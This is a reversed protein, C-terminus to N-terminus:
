KDAVEFISNSIAIKQENDYGWKKLFQFYDGNGKLSQLLSELLKKVINTDLLKLLEICRNKIRESKYSTSIDGNRKHEIVMATSMALNKVTLDVIILGGKRLQYILPDNLRDMLASESSLSTVFFGRAGEVSILLEAVREALVEDSIENNDWGRIWVLSANIAEEFTPKKKPM